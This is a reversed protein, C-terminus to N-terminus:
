VTLYGLNQIQTMAKPKAVVLEAVTLVAGVFGVQFNPLTSAFGTFAFAADEHVYLAGYNDNFLYLTGETAYQDFYIPVGAVMLAQFAGKVGFASDSFAEKPTVLYRELGTFDEALLAWTGPGTIGFTPKEGCAKVTGVIYQLILNRTPTTTSAPTYLNAKWFTSSTRNINGYVNLTAGNDIAGPLGIFQQNNSTNNYLATSMLDITNNTADNMRAEILPVVAHNVQVAGEMGLFPVPTIALKLDFEALSAGQQVAPGTFSGSYDSWQATVFSAGQVPVSVSSVGGSATQANALLAAMLPSANYIQVIMKPIFARRTVYTLETGINGSPVIGQGLVSM